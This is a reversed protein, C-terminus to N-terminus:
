LQLLSRPTRFQGIPLDPQWGPRYQARLVEFVTCQRWVLCHICFFSVIGRSNQLHFGGMDEVTGADSASGVDIPALGVLYSSSSSSFDLVWKKNANMLVVVLKM